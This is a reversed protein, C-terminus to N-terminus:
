KLIRITGNCCYFFMRKIRHFQVMENLDRRSFRPALRSGHTDRKLTYAHLRAAHNLGIAFVLSSSSSLMLLHMTIWSVLRRRRRWCLYLCSNFSREMSSSHFFCTTSKFFVTCACKLLLAFFSCTIQHSLFLFLSLYYALLFVWVTKITLNEGFCNNVNSSWM